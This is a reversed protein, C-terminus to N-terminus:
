CVCVHRLKQGRAWCVGSLYADVQKQRWFRGHAYFLWGQMLWVADPDAERMAAIVAQSSARLYDVDNSKPTMENFMDCNYVHDTGYERILLRYYEVGIRKWLEAEPRLLYNSRVIDCM